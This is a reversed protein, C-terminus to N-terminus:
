EIVYACVCGLVYACLAVNSSIFVSDAGIMTQNDEVGLWLPCSVNSMCHFHVRYLGFSALITM